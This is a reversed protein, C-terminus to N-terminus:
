MSFTKKKERGLGGSRMERGTDHGLFIVYHVVHLPKKKWTEPPYGNPPWAICQFLLIFYYDKNSNKRGQLGALIWNFRKVINMKLLNWSKLVFKGWLSKLRWVSGKGTRVMPYSHHEVRVLQLTSHWRKCKKKHKLIQINDKVFGEKDYNTM